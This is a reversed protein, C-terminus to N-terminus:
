FCIFMYYKKVPIFYLSIYLKVHFINFTSYSSFLFLKEEYKVIALSKNVLTQIAM